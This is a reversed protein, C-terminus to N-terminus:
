EEPEEEGTPKEAKLAARWCNGCWLRRNIAHQYHDLTESITGEPRPRGDKRQVASSGCLPAWKHPPEHPRVESIHYNGGGNANYTIQYRM